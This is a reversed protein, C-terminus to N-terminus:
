YNWFVPNSQKRIYCRFNKIPISFYKSAFNLTKSTLETEKVIDKKVRDEGYKKLIELVDDLSGFNFVRGIVFVSNEEFDIEEYDVDWFLRKNINLEM